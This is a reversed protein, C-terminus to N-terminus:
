RVGATGNTLVARGSGDFTAFSLSGAGGDWVDLRLTDGPFVPAAFRVSLSALRGPDGACARAILDRQAFALTCLGHLIVGPLGGRRAVEPDVHIPNHDGSAHAYRTAQDATVGQSVSWSPAPPTPADGKPGGATGKSPARVFYSTHGDWVLEDGIRGRLAYSYITGSSKEAVALLEGQLAVAEGARVPRSFAMGHEGHVLRLMDIRLDPDRALVMMLDIFARTHFMPPVVADPGRYAPNPDDTADAYARAAGAEVHFVGGDWTRGIPWGSEM